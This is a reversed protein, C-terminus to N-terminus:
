LTQTSPDVLVVLRQGPKIKSGPLRNWKKLDTVKVNFQNAIRYLSDGKRVKYKVKNRTHPAARFSALMVPSGSLPIMLYKGARINSGKLNNAQKLATVSIGYKKAIQSLTDGSRIKYREWRLRQDDPLQAFGNKFQEVSDVPLLLHHPGEPHTVWRNFGANLALLEEPKIGALESAVKLDLQDGIDVKVFHKDTTIEPLTLDYKDPEATMRALALLRPVYTRTEAPLELSWFDTPRGKKVNRKIANSVTGGGANYAAIALLWDGDFRNHLKRLYDLAADTSALPDRRADYWWDQKLGFYKGTAPMFQWLGAAGHHSYATPRYGSEIGPLLAIEGPMEKAEVQEVIHSLFPRGRELQRRVSDTRTSFLKIEREINPHEIDGLQFKSSIRYWIDRSSQEAQTDIIPAAFFDAGFESTDNSLLTDPQQAIGTTSENKVPNLNCGALGLSSVLLLLLIRQM